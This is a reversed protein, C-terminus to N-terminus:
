VSVVCVQLLISIMNNHITKSKHMEEANIDGIEFGAKVASELLAAIPESFAKPETIKVPGSEGRFGPFFEPQYIKRYM